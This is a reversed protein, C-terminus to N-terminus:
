KGKCSDQVWRKGEKMFPIIPNAWSELKFGSIGECSELPYNGSNFTEGCNIDDVTKIDM